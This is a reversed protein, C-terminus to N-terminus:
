CIHHRKTSAAESGAAAHKSAGGFSRAEPDHTYLWSSNRSILYSTSEQPLLCSLSLSDLL